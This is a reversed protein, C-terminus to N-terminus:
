VGVGNLKFFERVCLIKFITTKAYDVSQQVLIKKTSVDCEMFVCVRLSFPDGLSKTHGGSGRSAM